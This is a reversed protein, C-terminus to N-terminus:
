GSTMKEDDLLFFRRNENLKPWWLRTGPTETTTTSEPVTLLPRDLFAM